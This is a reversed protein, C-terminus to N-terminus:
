PFVRIDIETAPLPNRGTDIPDEADYVLRDDEFVVAHRVRSEETEALLQELPIPVLFADHTDAARAKVRRRCGCRAIPERPERVHPTPRGPTSCPTAVVDVDAPPWVHPMGILESVHNRPEAVSPPPRRCEITQVTALDVGPVVLPGKGNPKM